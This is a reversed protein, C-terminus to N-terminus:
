GGRLDNWTVPEVEEIEVNSVLNHENRYELFSATGTM